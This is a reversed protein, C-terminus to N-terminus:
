PLAFVHLKNTRDTPLRPHNFEDLGNTTVIAVYQKGNKGRYTMPTNIANAPLDTSWLEHGTKADFARFMADATSGVFVVGGATVITGGANPVGTKPVGRKSLEKYEGLPERWVTDGTNANIAMLEGWPTGSCPYGEADNFPIKRKAYSELINSSKTPQLVAMTGLSRTNVFIYGLGPDYSVGGWSGGGESSPFVLSPTMGYPTNPGAQVAKDYQAQCSKVTEPSVQSVEKRTMEVRSIAEPKLPFPQTPSAVEGPADSQPAPREEAGFVPKGTERDLIWLYGVKTSQAVAPITKGDRHVDILTPAANVDWDFIDHHTIQFYWKLKGTGADLAIVSTAYLNTGPRSGGYNQDTANGLAIFALGRENDVTLPVWSGPGRRDQWGNEGWTGFNEDGPQPVTHFRWVEKGTTLDFARPDGPVGYRGQEGSTPSLIALNKYIAPTSGPTYTGGFKEMVGVKLDILGKAGVGAFLKGTKADLQLLYGDTTAVVIRPAARGDGPWYSVGYKAGMGKVGLSTLDVSWIPAGTEANLALVKKGTTFLYMVNDVVIPTIEWGRFGTSPDGTEFTWAKTLRGANEPTIQTLASYKTSGADAGLSPWDGPSTRPAPAALASTAMLAVSFALIPIRLTM